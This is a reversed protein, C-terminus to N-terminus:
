EPKRRPSWKELVQELSELTFPKPMVENAGVELCKEIDSEMANATAAIIPLAMANSEQARIQSILEYGDMKPMRIDPRNIISSDIEVEAASSVDIEDRYGPIAQFQVTFTSGQGLKSDVKLEGQMLEVLRKTIVLGIGTGEIATFEAGLRNFPKFLEGLRDTSIGSGTDTISIKAPGHEGLQCDISIKGNECNYKVANSLLNLFVQKLRVADAEVTVGNFAEPDFEISIGRGKAMGAVWSVSAKIVSGLPVSEMSLEINGAEIRSLDLIEDILNLLHKGVAMNRAEILDVEYKKRETVDEVITLIRQWSDEDGKVISTILRVHFESDDMRAETIESIKIKDPGALGAIESAYLNAWEEDWWGSIGEESDIFDDISDADYIEILRDNVSSIVITGVLDRLMLPNEQFYDMFDDVGESRLKDVGKKIKSWNQEMVGLLLKSFLASNAKGSHRPLNM